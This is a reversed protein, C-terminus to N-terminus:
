NKSVYLNNKTYQHFRGHIEAKLIINLSFKNIFNIFLQFLFLFEFDGRSNSRQLYYLFYFIIM